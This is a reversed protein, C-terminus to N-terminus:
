VNKCMNRRRTCSRRGSTWVRLASSPLTLPVAAPWGQENHRCIQLLSIASCCSRLPPSVLSGKSCLLPLQLITFLVTWKTTNALSFLNSLSKARSNNAHRAYLAMVVKWLSIISGSGIRGMGTWDGKWARPRLCRQSRRHSRRHRRFHHQKLSMKLTKRWDKIEKIEKDTKRQTQRESRKRPARQKPPESELKFLRSPRSHLFSNLSFIWTFLYSLTTHPLFVSLVWIFQQQVIFFWSKPVQHVQHVTMEELRPHGAERRRQYVEECAMCSAERLASTRDTEANVKATWLGMATEAKLMEMYAARWECHRFGIRLMNQLCLFTMFHRSNAARDRNEAIPSFSVADWVVAAIQKGDCGASKVVGECAIWLSLLDLVYEFAKLLVVFYFDPHKLLGLPENEDLFLNFASKRSKSLTLKVKQSDEVQQASAANAENLTKWEQRWTSEDQNMKYIRSPHSGDKCSPIGLTLDLDEM